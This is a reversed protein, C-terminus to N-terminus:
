TGGNDTKALYNELNHLINLQILIKNLEADNGQVNQLFIQSQASIDTIRNKSKYDEVNKEISGLETAIGSLRDNIFALTMASEKNKDDLAARNYEEVLRNLFDIGRQPLADELTIILVTAQKSLPDIAIGNSYQQALTLMNNFSVNLSQNKNGGNQPKVLIIGAETQIP